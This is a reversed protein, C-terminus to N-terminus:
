GHVTSEIAELLGNLLDIERVDAFVALIGVDVETLVIMSDASQLITQHLGGLTLKKTALNTNSHIATSMAGMTEKDLDAKLTSAIVLGDHGVILSGAVGPYSDITGLLARIGAGRAASIVRATTLGGSRREASKIINSVAQTDILLKGISKMGGSDAQPREAAASSSGLRGFEKVQRGEFAQPLPEKAPSPKPPASELAIPEPEAKKAEARAPEPEPPSLSAPEAREPKVPEPKFAELKVTEAQFKAREAASPKEAELAKHQTGSDAKSKQDAALSAILDRVRDAAVASRAAQETVSDMEAEGEEGEAQVAERDPSTVGPEPRDAAGAENAKAPASALPEALPASTDIPARRATTEAAEEKISSDIRELLGNLKAPGRSGAFVALIGIDLETLVVIRDKAQLIAQRLAGYDVKKTALGSSSHVAMSMAGCTDKDMSTDLTSAIVLGDHGVILSGDVGPCADINALVANLDEGRKASVVRATTLSSTKLEGEVKREGAKIINEVAQTDILMKGITKMTGEAKSEEKIAASQSLRAFEKVEKPEASKPLSVKPKDSVPPASQSDAAQSAPVAQAAPSDAQGSAAKQGSAPAAAPKAPREPEVTQAPTPAQGPPKDLQIPPRAATPAADFTPAAGSAAAAPAATQEPSDAGPRFKAMTEPSVDLQAETPVLKSFIDEIETGVDQEFLSSTSAAESSTEDQYPVVQPTMDIAEQAAAESLPSTMDEAQLLQQFKSAPPQTKAPEDGGALVIPGAEVTPEPSSAPGLAMPELEEAPPAPPASSAALPIATAEQDFPEAQDPESAATEAKPEASAAMGIQALDQPSIRLGRMTKHMATDKAGKRETGDYTIPRDLSDFSDLNTAAPGAPTPEEPEVASAIDASGEQGQAGRDEILPLGLLPKDVGIRGASQTGPLIIAEQADAAELGPGPQSLGAEESGASTFAEEFVSSSADEAAQSEDRFLSELSVPEAPRLSKELRMIRSVDLSELIEKVSQPRRAPDRDVTPEKIQSLEGAAPPSFDALDPPLEDMTVPGAPSDPRAAAAAAAAQEKFHARMLLPYEEPIDLRFLTLTSLLGVLNMIVLEVWSILVFSEPLMQTSQSIYNGWAGVSMSLAVVTGALKVVQVPSASEYFLLTVLLALGLEGVFLALLPIEVLKDPLTRPLYTILLLGICLTLVFLVKNPNLKIEHM